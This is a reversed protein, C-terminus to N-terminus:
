FCNAFCKCICKMGKEMMEEKVCEWEKKDLKDIASSIARIKDSPVKCIDLVADLLKRNNILLVVNDGVMDRIQQITLAVVEM